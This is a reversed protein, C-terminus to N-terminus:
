YSLFPNTRGVEGIELPWEGYDRLSQFRSDNFFEDDFDIKDIVGQVKLKNAQEIKDIKEDQTSEIIPGTSSSYFFGFYVVIAITLALGILIMLLRQQKQEQPSLVSQKSFLNFSM